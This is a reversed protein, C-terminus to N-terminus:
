GQPAQAQKQKTLEIARKAIKEAEAAHKKREAENKTSKQKERYLLSLYSYADAYEPDIALAKQIYEFGRTVCDEFKQKDPAYYFDRTHFPDSMMKQKDAYRTSESYACQWYSQGISYYTTAKIGKANETCAEEARKLLWEQHKEKNNLDDYIKAIYGMANDKLKCDGQALELAKHYANLAREATAKMEEESPATQYKKILTAGYYLWATPNEPILETARAFFQLAEDARGQNYLVAGQNLKDKAIVKKAFGCSSNSVALATVAVLGLAIMAYRFVRTNM